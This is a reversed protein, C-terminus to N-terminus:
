LRFGISIGAVIATDGDVWDVNIEPKLTYGGRMEFEYGIGARFLPESDGDEIEAGPMATLQWGSGGLGIVLPVGVVWSDLPDRAYEALLGVGVVESFQYRYQAGTSVANEREGHHDASTNGVFFELVHPSDVGREQAAAELPMGVLVLGALASAVPRFMSSM